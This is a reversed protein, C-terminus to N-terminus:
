SRLILSLWSLKQFPLLCLCDQYLILKLQISYVLLPNLHQIKALYFQRKRIQGVMPVEYLGTMLSVLDGAKVHYM